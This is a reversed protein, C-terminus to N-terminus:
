DGLLMWVQCSAFMCAFTICAWFLTSLDEKNEKWFKKM